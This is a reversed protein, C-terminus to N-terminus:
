SSSKKESLAFKVFFQAFFKFDSPFWNETNFSTHVVTYIRVMDSFQNIGMKYSKLGKSHLYNHMEVKKLTEAFVTKRYEEETDHEYVKELISVCLWFIYNFCLLSCMDVWTVLHECCM